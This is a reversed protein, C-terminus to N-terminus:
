MLRSEVFCKEIMPKQMHAFNQNHKKVHWKRASWILLIKGFICGFGCMNRVWNETSLKEVRSQGLLLLHAWHTRDSASAQNWILYISHRLSDALKEVEFNQINTFEQFNSISFWWVDCTYVTMTAGGISNCGRGDTVGGRWVGKLKM